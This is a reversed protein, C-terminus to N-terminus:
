YDLLMDVDMNPFQGGFKEVAYHREKLLTFELFNLLGFEQIETNHVYYYGRDGSEPDTLVVRAEDPLGSILSKLEAATTM